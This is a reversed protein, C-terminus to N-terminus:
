KRNCSFLSIFKLHLFSFCTISAACHCRLLRVQIESKANQFKAGTARARWLSLALPAPPAAGRAALHSVPYGFLLRCARSIQKELQDVRKFPLRYKGPKTLPRGRIASQMQRTSEATPRDTPPRQQQQQSSRHTGVSPAAAARGGAEGRAGDGAGRRTPGAPHAAIEERALQRMEGWIAEVAVDGAGTFM